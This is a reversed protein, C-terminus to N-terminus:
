DSLCDSEPSVKADNKRIKLEIMYDGFLGSIIVWTTLISFFVVSFELLVMATWLYKACTRKRASYVIAHALDVTM